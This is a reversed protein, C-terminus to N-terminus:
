IDLFSDICFGNLIVDNKRCSNKNIKHETRHRLAFYQLISDAYFYTVNSVYERKKM